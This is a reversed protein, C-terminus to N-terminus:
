LDDVDQEPANDDETAATGTYSGSPDAPSVFAECLTEDLTELSEEM